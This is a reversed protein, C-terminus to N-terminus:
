RVVETILLIEQEEQVIPNLSDLVAEMERNFERDKIDEIKESFDIAGLEFLAEMEEDSISDEWEVPEPDCLRGGSPASKMAEELDDGFLVQPGEEKEIVEHVEQERLWLEGKQTHKTENLWACLQDLHPTRKLNGQLVTWLLVIQKIVFVRQTDINVLTVDSKRLKNPSGPGLYIEEVMGGSLEKIYDLDEGTLNDLPITKLDIDGLKREILEITFM